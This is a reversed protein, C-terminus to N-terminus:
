KKYLVIELILLLLLLLVLLLPSTLANIRLLLYAVAFGGILLGHFGSPFAAIVFFYVTLFVLPFFLILAPVHLPGLPIGTVPSIFVLTLLLLVASIIGAILYNLRRNRRFM